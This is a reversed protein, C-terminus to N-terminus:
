SSQVKSDHLVTLFYQRIHLGHEKAAGILDELEPMPSDGGGLWVAIRKEEDEEDLDHKQLYFSQLMNDWGYVYKYRGDLTTLQSM